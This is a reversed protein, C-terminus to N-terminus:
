AAGPERKDDKGGTHVYIIRPRCRQLVAEFGVICIATLAAIATLIMLDVDDHRM